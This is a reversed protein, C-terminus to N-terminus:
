KKPVALGIEKVEMNDKNQRIVSPVAQIHFRKIVEPMAFYVHRDIRSRIDGYAGDTILIRTKSDAAHGSTKLWTVQDPDEADIIVLTRPYSVYELPNFNYGAPYLIGGRGDPIDFDLTHTMDVSFTRDRTARPLKPIGAPRFQRIKELNGPSRIMNEWDVAAARAKIESLADQEAIPYVRGIVGLSRIGATASSAVFVILFLVIAPKM